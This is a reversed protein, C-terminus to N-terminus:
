LDSVNLELYDEEQESESNVEIVVNYVNSKIPYQTDTSNTDNTKMPHDHDYKEDYKEEQNRKRTRKRMEITNDGNVMMMRSAFPPLRIDVVAGSKDMVKKNMSFLKHTVDRSILASVVMGLRPEKVFLYELTSRQWVIYKSAVAACITVQFTESESSATAMSEFEPSDLFESEAIQHLFGQENLVSCRGSILMGLNDTKSLNAVAYCEGPHLSM